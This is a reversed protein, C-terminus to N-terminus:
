VRRVSSFTASTVNGNSDTALSIQLVSGAPIQNGPASALQTLNDDSPWAPLQPTTHPVPKYGPPWSTGSAWYQIEYSINNSKVYIMYQFIILTQEQSLQGPPPYANLQLSFGAGEVTSLTETVKLLVTLNQLTQCNNFLVANNNSQYSM